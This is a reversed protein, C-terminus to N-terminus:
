QTDHTSTPLDNIAGQMSSPFVAPYNYDYDYNYDYNQNNRNTLRTNQNSYLAM